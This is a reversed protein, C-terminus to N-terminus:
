FYCEYNRVVYVVTANSACTAEPTRMNVQNGAKQNSGEHALHLTDSQSLSSSFAAVWTWTQGWVNCSYWM